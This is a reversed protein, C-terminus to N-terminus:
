RRRSSSSRVPVFRRKVFRGLTRRGDAEIRETLGSGAPDSQYVTRGAKVSHAFANRDVDDVVKKLNAQIRGAVRKDTQAEVSTPQVSPRRRAEAIAAEGLQEASARFATKMAQRTKPEQMRALLPNCGDSDVDLRPPTTRHSPTDTSRKKDRM